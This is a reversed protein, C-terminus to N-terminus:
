SAVKMLVKVVFQLSVGILRRRRRNAFHRIEHSAYPTIQFEQTTLNIIVTLEQQM